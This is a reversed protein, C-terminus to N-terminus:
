IYQHMLVESMWGKEQVCVVVGDPHTLKLKQKGKFIVMPPLVDGSATVTLVVTLHRKESGTTRLLISKQGKRDLTRGPVVDFYAPTEDMNGILVPEFDDQCRLRYFFSCFNAIRSELDAPLRQALSTKMRLSLNHAWGRSAKFDLEPMKESVFKHVYASLSDTTVPLQLDQMELVWQLIELDLENGYTM